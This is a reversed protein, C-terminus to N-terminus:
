GKEANNLNKKIKIKQLNRGWCSSYNTPCGNEEILQESYGHSTGFVLIFINKVGRILFYILCFIILAISILSVGTGITAMVIVITTFTDTELYSSATSTDSLCFMTPNKTFTTWIREISEPLNNQQISNPKNCDWHFSLRNNM